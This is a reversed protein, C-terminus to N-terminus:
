QTSIINVAVAPLAIKFVSGKDPESDITVKGNASAVITNVLYLGVGSGESTTKLQQFKEFISKQDAKSIGIGNDAVSIVLHENEQYASILIEPIRSAPTYKIANNLLNYIVSRLKRRAFTFQSIELEEKIIAKSKLIQPALTLRVDELINQLDLLEVEAKYRHEQWRSAVLDNVVKKIQMLSSEVHALFVPFKEMSKEPLKKLM